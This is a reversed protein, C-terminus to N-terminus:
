GHDEWGSEIKLVFAACLSNQLFCVVYSALLGFYRANINGMGLFGHDGGGWLPSSGKLFDPTKLWAM